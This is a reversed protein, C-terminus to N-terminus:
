CRSRRAGPWRPAISAATRGRRAPCSTPRSRAARSGPHGPAHPQLAPLLGFRRLGAVRAKRGALVERETGAPIDVIAFVERRALAAQAEALTTPRAVVRVAEHANLAQVLRRSVESSDDDVVAIPIARVLQGLYPQPYFAGYIIPAMVILGFAGREALSAGTSPLSPASSAAARGAPRGRGARQPLPKRPSARLRLVALASSLGACAPWSPWAARDVARGARRARGPRVPDAHVLAAAAPRGLLARLREDGAASLRRRRLRLGALLLHRHAVPGFALNRVLLQLLAGVCLYAWILLSAAVGILLPDGRFPM